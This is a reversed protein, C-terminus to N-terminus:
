EPASIFSWAPFAAAFHNEKLDLPSCRCTFIYSRGNNGEEVFNLFPKAVM